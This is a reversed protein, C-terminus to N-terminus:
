IGGPRGNAAQPNVLVPTQGDGTVVVAGPVKGEAIAKNLMYALAGDVGLMDVLPRFGDVESKARTNIEQQAVNLQKNENAKNQADQLQQPIGPQALTVGEIIFYDNGTSQKVLDPMRDVIMKEWRGRAGDKDFVLEEWGFRKTAENVANTLPIQMYDRWIGKIDLGDGDTYKLGIQEHFERLQECNLSGDANTFNLHLRATGSVFLQQGEPAKSTASIVPFDAKEENSFILTRQGAPYYFFKDGPGQVERSGPNICNAFETSSFSGASYHLGYEDPETNGISCGTLVVASAALAAISLSLKSKKM